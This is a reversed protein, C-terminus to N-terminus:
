ATTATDSVTICVGFPDRVVVTGFIIDTVLLLGLNELLYESQVRVKSGGPTQIGFGFATKHCLLNRYGGLNDVVNTSVYLPIDYLIGRLGNSHPKEGITGTAVISKEGAGGSQLSYAQYYKTIAAAQNWFVNPHLFFALEQFGADDLNQDEIDAIAQRAEQDTFAAASNTILNTSLSSWLGFLSAELANMTTKRMQNAYEVHFDFSKHLQAIDKDGALVAVYNHTNVALQVKVQAPDQLTVQGGQTSQTSVTFTNTYLNAIDFTSGGETTWESLDLFFNSAVTSAFMQELVIPTWIEPISAALNAATFQNTFSAM